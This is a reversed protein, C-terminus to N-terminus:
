KKWMHVDMEVIKNSKVDPLNELLLKKVLKLIPLRAWGAIKKCTTRRARGSPRERWLAGTAGRARRHARDERASYTPVKPARARGERLM